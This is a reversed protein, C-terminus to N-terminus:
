TRTITFIGSANWTVVLNAGSPSVTGGSELEVYGLLLDTGTLSGGARKTLVLYKATLTVSSWTVDAADFTVVAGSRTVTISALSQGGATYGGATSLETASVDSWTDDANVSPTYSSSHLTAVITSGDLDLLAKAIAEVAASYPTFTGAAM